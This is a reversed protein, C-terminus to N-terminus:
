QSPIKNLLDKIQLNSPERKLIRNLEGRAAKNNGRYAYLGALNVSAQTYDPNLALAKKYYVEATQDDGNLLRVYGLNTWGPAYVPIEETLKKFVREAEKIDNSGLASSGYKNAFEYQYPALKYAIKFFQLAQSIAGLASFSEGIRYATWADQNSWSMKILKDKILNSEGYRKTLEVIKLYDKKAFYLHILLHFDNRFVTENKENLRTQASDLLFLNDPDFKEFQQIYALAQSNISTNKENICALGKFKGRESSAKVAVPRKRIYHDHVTVHPIDLSGSVPMHCSICNNKSASRTTESESCITQQGSSHCSSCQANFSSVGSNRVSVHPNHCTVCTLANKYPRLGTADANKDAMVKFCASKKLRDAHSAMIFQSEDNEYRPLYVEMVDSLKMGPKFDYFSKGPKLVANGQLHCRQCLDFQLDVSLKGPNVITYDIFKSTDVLIGERKERVHMSGPGHCRECDIGNPVKLFKNESGMAFQPYGNHCSMCELGIQRNFRSNFGQEFGPPLDWIGKQTYFTIPAQFVYGNVQYLHSNTHHGSGVIYNIYQRRRHVTDGNTVRFEYIYLSDNNFYPRYSLDLDADYVIHVKSFDGASKKPTAHDFSKGMGTESFTQHIDSHCQM